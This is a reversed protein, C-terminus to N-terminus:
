GTTISRGARRIYESDAKMLEANLFGEIERQLALKQSRTVNPMNFNLRKEGDPPPGFRDNLLQAARQAARAVAMVHVKSNGFYNGGQDGAERSWHKGFKSGDPDVDKLFAVAGQVAAREERSWSKHDFNAADFDAHTQGMVGFMSEAAPSSEPSREDQASSSTGGDMGPTNSFNM